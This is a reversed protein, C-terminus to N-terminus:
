LFEIECESPTHYKIQRFNYTGKSFIRVEFWYYSGLQLKPQTPYSSSSALSLIDPLSIRAKHNFTSLSTGKLSPPEGRSGGLRRFSLHYKIKILYIIHYIVKKNRHSRVRGAQFAIFSYILM